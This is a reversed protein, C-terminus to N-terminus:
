FLQKSLDHLIGDCDNIGTIPNLIDNPLIDIIAQILSCLVMENSGGGTLKQSQKYAAYEKKAKAKLDKWLVILQKETRAEVNQSNYYSTVKKWAEDKRRLSTSNYKKSEIINIGTADKIAEILIHKKNESYNKTHQM